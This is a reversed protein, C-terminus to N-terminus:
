AKRFDPFSDDDAPKEPLLLAPLPIASGADRRPTTPPSPRALAHRQRELERLRAEAADAERRALRLRAEEADARAQAIGARELASSREAELDRDLQARRYAERDDGKRRTRRRRVTPARGGRRWSVFFERCRRLM